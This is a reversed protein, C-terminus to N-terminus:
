NYTPAWNRKVASIGGSKYVQVFKCISTYPNLRDATSMWESNFQFLGVYDHTVCSPNGSSEGNIIHIAKDEIFQSWVGYKKLYWRVVPRWRAAGSGSPRPGNYGSSSSAKFSKKKAKKKAKARAPAKKVWTRSSAKAKPRAAAKAAPKAASAAVKAAPKAAAKAKAGKPKVLPLSAVSLAPASKASVTAATTLGAATKESVAALTAATPAVGLAAEVSTTGVVSTAAAAPASRFFSPGVGGLVAALALTALVGIAVPRSFIRRVNL